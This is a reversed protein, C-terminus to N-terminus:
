CCAVKKVVNTELFFIRIIAEVASFGFPFNPVAGTKRVAIEVISPAM